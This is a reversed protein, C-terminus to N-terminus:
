PEARKRKGPKHPRTPREDGEERPREPRQLQTAVAGAIVMFIGNLSPPVEFGEVVTSAITTGVWGLVVGGVILRALWPDLNPM